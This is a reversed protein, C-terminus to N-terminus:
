GRGLLRVLETNCREPEEYQVWHGADSIMRLERFGPAVRLLKEVSGLQSRYLADEAGFVVDVNCTLHPLAQLVVDTQSIRRARMRDRALNAGHIAVASDDISAPRHLMRVALNHRHASNQATDDPLNRWPILKDGEERLGLGPPALLVLQRVREPRTIAMLTAVMAGFSFGILSCPRQVFQDLGAWLPEITGHVDNGEVAAVDSEGFGPIDPVLVRHGADSLPLVNRLWHNWSGSGGHLLVSPRGQGWEHWVTIRGSFMTEHRRARAIVSTVRDTITAM